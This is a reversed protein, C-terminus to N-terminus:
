LFNLINYVCYKTSFDEIDGSMEGFVTDVVNQIEELQSATDVAKKGFMALGAIGGLTMLGSTVGRIGLSVKPLLSNLDQFPKLLVSKISKISSIPHVLANTMGTAITKIVTLSASGIKKVTTEGIKGITHFAGAVIKAGGNAASSVAKSTFSVLKNASKSAKDIQGQTGKSSTLDPALSNIDANTKLRKFQNGVEKVWDNTKELKRDLKDVANSLADMSGKDDFAVFDRASDEAEAKVKKVKEFANKISAVQEEYVKLTNPNVSGMNFAKNMANGAKVSDDIIKNLYDYIKAFPSLDIKPPEVKTAKWDIGSIDQTSQAKVTETTTKSAQKKASSLDPAKVTGLKKFKVTLSDILDSTDELDQNLQEVSDDTYDVDDGAEAFEDFSSTIAADKAKAVADFASKIIDINDKYAKLADTNVNGSSLAERMADNVKKSANYIEDLYRSVEDLSKLDVNPDKVELNLSVKISEDMEAM